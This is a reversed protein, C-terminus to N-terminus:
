GDGQSLIGAAIVLAASHTKRFRQNVKAM